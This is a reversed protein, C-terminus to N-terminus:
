YLINKLKNCSYKTATYEIMTIVSLRGGVCIISM